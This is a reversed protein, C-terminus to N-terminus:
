KSEFDVFSFMGIGCRRAKPSLHPEALERIEEFFTRVRKWETSVQRELLIDGNEDRLNVTLQKRHLDIALYLM